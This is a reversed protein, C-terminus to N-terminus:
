RYRNSAMSALVMQSEELAEVLDATDGAQLESLLLM